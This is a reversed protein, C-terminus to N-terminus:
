AGRRLAVGAAPHDPLAEVSLARITEFADPAGRLAAEVAHELTRRTLVEVVQRRHWAPGRIDDIPSCEGAATRAAEAILAADIRQGQLLAEARRARLPTPGVAGLAIRATRFAGSRLDVSVVSAVGVTAIDMARRPSHKIYLSGTHEAVPPVRFEAALDDAGLVTRGPGVFFEDLPVWRQGSPGVVKVEGGFALLAPITDGAPSANCVNGGVTALNRIQVGAFSTAAATMASYRQRIVPHLELTRVPVLTGIRLGGTPSYHVRDLGPINKISILYQPRWAGQRWRM